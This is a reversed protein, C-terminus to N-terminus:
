GHKIYFTANQSQILRQSRVVTSQLLTEDNVAVLLSQPIAELIM